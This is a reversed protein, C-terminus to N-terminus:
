DSKVASRTLSIELLCHTPPHLSKRRSQQPLLNGGGGLVCRDQKNELFIGGFLKVMLLLAVKTQRGPEGEEVKQDGTLAVMRIESYLSFRIQIAGNSIM